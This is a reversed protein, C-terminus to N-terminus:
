SVLQILKKLNSTQRSAMVTRIADPDGRMVAHLEDVVARAAREIEGLRDIEQAARTLLTAITPITADYTISAQHLEAALETDAKM